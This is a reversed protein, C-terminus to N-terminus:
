LIKNLAEILKDNQEATGISIRLKDALGPLNFYRVYINEAALSEYVKGADSTICKALIFNSQSDLVELRMERLAGTMRTREAIVKAVDDLQENRANFGFEIVPPMAHTSVITLNSDHVPIQVVLTPFGLPPSAILDVSDFPVRSIVAIGFNGARPVFYNYPYDEALRSLPQQWGERFEQLFVVDPKEAAVLTILREYQKNSSLVNAHLISITSAGKAPNKDAGFYWPLVPVANVITIAAMFIAYSRVRLGTFILALLVSALLYQLRFHSFLEIYRHLPEFFTAISFVATLFGAAQLLGLLSVYGGKTLRM